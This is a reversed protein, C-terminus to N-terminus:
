PQPDHINKDTLTARVRFHLFTPVTDEKIGTHLGM